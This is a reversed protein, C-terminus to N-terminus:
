GAGPADAPAALDFRMRVETGGEAREAITLGDCADAILPLGWGLGPTRSQTQFGCGDDAVLVWLEGGALRATVRVQPERDPDLHGDQYAHVVANTVAESIAVGVAELRAPDGISAGAFEVVAARALRVASPKAPYACDIGEM